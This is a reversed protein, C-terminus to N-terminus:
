KRKQAHGCHICMEGTTPWDYECWGKPNVPCYWGLDTDCVLCNVTESFWKDNPDYNAPTDVTHPCNAHMRRTAMFFDHLIEQTARHAVYSYELAEAVSAIFHTLSPQQNYLATLSRIRKELREPSINM